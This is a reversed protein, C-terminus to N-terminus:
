LVPDEFMMRRELEDIDFSPKSEPKTEKRKNEWTRIAAKWDKMPEKGIKWGKATYFDIFGQPNIGNRRENCYETVEELTPPIKKKSLVITNDKEKDINDRINNHATEASGRHLKQVGRATEADRTGTAIYRNFTVGNIVEPIKVILGKDCLSKLANIVTHNSGAGIWEQMYRISGKFESEGDQSFGYILAYLILEAGKLGLETIMWGQLTIFCESKMMM